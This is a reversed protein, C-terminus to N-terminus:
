DGFNEGRRVVEKEKKLTAQNTGETAQDARDDTYGRQPHSQPGDDMHEESMTLM